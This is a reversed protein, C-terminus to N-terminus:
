KLKKQQHLIVNRWYIILWDSVSIPSLFNVTFKYASNSFLPVFNRKFINNNVAYFATIEGLVRTHFNCNVSVWLLIDLKSMLRTFKIEM